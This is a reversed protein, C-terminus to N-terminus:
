LSFFTITFTSALFLSLSLSISMSTSAITSSTNAPRSSPASTNCSESIPFITALARLPISASTFISTDTSVLSDDGSEGYSNIVGFFKLAGKMDKFSKETYPYSSASKKGIIIPMAHAYSRLGEKGNVSGLGSQKVGGFPAENVGYSMAMDNISCAGTELAKALIMGKNVNQTWVNGNLGYYSDNALRLAENESKVRMISIVPGFTEDTMIKMQHNVNIIVTPEFYLGKLTSNRKGGVLIHAGKQM